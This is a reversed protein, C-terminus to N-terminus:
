AETIMYKGDVEGQIYLMLDNDWDSNSLTIYGSDAKIEQAEFLQQLEELTYYKDQNVEVGAVIIKKMEEEYAKAEAIAENYDETAEEDVGYRFAAVGSKVERDTGLAKIFAKKTLEIQEKEYAEDISDYTVVEGDNTWYVVTGKEFYKKM